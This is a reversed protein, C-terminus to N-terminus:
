ANRYQLYFALYCCIHLFLLSDSPPPSLVSWSLNDAKLATEWLVKKEGPSYHRKPRHLLLQQIGLLSSFLSMPQLETRGWCQKSTTWNM